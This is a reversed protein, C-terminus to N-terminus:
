THLINTAHGGACNGRSEIRMGSSSRSVRVPVAREAERAELDRRALFVVKEREMRADKARLQRIASGCRNLRHREREHETYCERSCYKAAGELSFFEKGCRACVRNPKAKMRARYNRNNAVIRCNDCCYKQAKGKNPQFKRGCNACTNYTMVTATM